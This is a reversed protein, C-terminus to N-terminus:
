LNNSKLWNDYVAFEAAAMDDASSENARLMWQTAKINRKPAGYEQIFGVENAPVTKVDGGVTYTRGHKSRSYVKTVERRKYKHHPGEPYVLVHRNGNRDKAKKHAKISKELLGRTKSDLTKSLLKRVSAKHARVVVKAGADLIGEVVDDPIVAFKEFDLRLGDIGTANFKAVRM